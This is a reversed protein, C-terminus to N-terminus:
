KNIESYNSEVRQKEDDFQSEIDPGPENESEEDSDTNEDEQDSDPSLHQDPPRTQRSIRSHTIRVPKEDSVFRPISSLSAV